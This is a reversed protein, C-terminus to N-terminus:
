LHICNGKTPIEVIFATIGRNGKNRDTRAFVIVAKAECGNTVWAKSGNLIWGNTTSTATTQLGAADSGSGTSFYDIPLCM